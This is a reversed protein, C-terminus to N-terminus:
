SGAQFLMTVVVFTAGMSLLDINHGKGNYELTGKQALFWDGGQITVTGTRDIRYRCHSVGDKTTTASQNQTALRHRTCM